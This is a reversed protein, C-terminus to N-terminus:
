LPDGPGGDEQFAGVVTDGSIAVSYGFYDESQADSAHLIQVQGWNDAGGQNREFVYVAGAWSAPDGPGGKEGRAGVIVTDGSISVSWGFYDGAQADSATLKAVQGWNEAGGQNREFVYAAGAISAPDGPGGDEEDAGAVVTDGSIAVSWGFSDGQQADSARLIAIETHLLPDVTLPYVASTADIHIAFQSNRALELHAPLPRGTADTVLLQDYLLAVGGGADRLRLGQGASDLEPALDGRLAFTLVVDGGEPPAYLTLGHKVGDASNEYWETVAGNWRYEVRERRGSLGAENIAVPFTQEGYALLNLRVDWLRGGNADYRTATFGGPAFALSLNHARNPARYAWSGDRTQWTFQYEATRMLDQMTDWESATFEELVDALERPPAAAEAAPREQDAPHLGRAKVDTTAVPVTPIEEVSAASAALFPTMTMVVALVVLARMLISRVIPKNHQTNMLIEELIYLQPRWGSGWM